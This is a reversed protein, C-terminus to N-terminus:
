EKCDKPRLAPLEFAKTIKMLWDIGSGYGDHWVLDVPNETYAEPKGDDDYYVKHIAHHSEEPNANEFYLVRYNWTTM